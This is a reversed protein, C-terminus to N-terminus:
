QNWNYKYPSILVKTYALMDDISIRLYNEKDYYECRHESEYEPGGYIEYLQKKLEDISPYDESNGIRINLAYNPTEEDIYIYVDREENLFVGTGLYYENASVKQEDLLGIEEKTKKLLSTYSLITNDMASAIQTSASTSNGLNTDKSTTALEDDQAEISSDSGSANSKLSANTSGEASAEPMGLIELKWYKNPDFFKLYCETLDKKVIYPILIRKTEGIKLSINARLAADYGQYDTGSSKPILTVGLNDTVLFINSFDVRDPDWEPGEYSINKVIMKLLIIQEDEDLEKKNRNTWEESAAISDFSIEVEGLDCKANIVADTTTESSTGLTKSLHDEVDLVTTDFDNRTLHWCAGNSLIKLTYRSNNKFDAYPIAIRKKEGIKINAFAGAASDYGPYEYSSSLPTITIGEEDTLVMLNDFAVYNPNLEDSYSINEIMFKLIIVSQDDSLDRQMYETWTSSEEIGELTIVVDGYDCTGLSSDGLTLKQDSGQSSSTNNDREDKSKEEDENDSISTDGVVSSESETNNSEIAANNGCAVFILLCFCVIELAIKKM